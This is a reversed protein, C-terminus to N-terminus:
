ESGGDFDAVRRAAEFKMDATRRKAEVDASPTEARLTMRDKLAAFAVRVSEPMAQGLLRATEDPASLALLEAAGEVHRGMQEARQLADARRASDFGELLRWEVPRHKARSEAILRGYAERFAMRAGVEDGADMVSRAANWASGIEATWVVSDAEDQGALAMAWAEDAGPRGDAAAIRDLIDAPVPAFKSGKVHADFAAQVVPLPHAMLARFFLAASVPSPNYNRNLLGCVGDLMMQFAPLDRETM